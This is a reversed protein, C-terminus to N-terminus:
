GPRSVEGKWKSISSGSRNALGRQVAAAVVGDISAIRRDVNALKAAAVDIGADLKTGEMTRAAASMAQDGGHMAMLQSFTGRANIAALGAILLLIINFCGPIAVACKVSRGGM